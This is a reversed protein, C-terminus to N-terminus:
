QVRDGYPFGSCQGLIDSTNATDAVARVFNLQTSGTSDTYTGEIIDSRTFTGTYAGGEPVL